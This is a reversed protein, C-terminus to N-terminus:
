RRCAVALRKTYARRESHILAERFFYIFILDILNLLICKYRRYTILIRDCVQEDYIESQYEKPSVLANIENQLKDENLFDFFSSSPENTLSDTDSSSSSESEVCLKVEKIRQKRSTSTSSDNNIIVHKDM